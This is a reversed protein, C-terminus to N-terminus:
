QEITFYWQTAVTTTMTVTFTVILESNGFIPLQGNSNYGGGTAIARVQTTGLTTPFTNPAYTFTLPTYSAASTTVSFATVQTAASGTTQTAKLNPAVYLTTTGTNKFRAIFSYGITNGIMQPAAPDLLTTITGSTQTTGGTTTSTTTITSKYDDIAKKIAADVETKTYYNTMNPAAIKAISVDVYDKSVGAVIDAKNAKTDVTAKLTDYAKQLAAIQDVTAFAVAPKDPEVTCSLIPVCLLILASLILLAKKMNNWRM